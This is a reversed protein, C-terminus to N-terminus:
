IRGFGGKQLEPMRGMVLLMMMMMMAVLLVLVRGSERMVNVGDMAYVGRSRRLVVRGERAARGVATRQTVGGVGAGDARVGGSGVHRVRVVATM